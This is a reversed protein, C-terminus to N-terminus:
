LQSENTVVDGGRGPRWGSPRARYRSRQNNRPLSRLNKKAPEPRSPFFFRPIIQIQGRQEHRLSDDSVLTHWTGLDWCFNKNPRPRPKRSLRSPPHAIPLHKRKPTLHPLKCIMPSSQYPTPLVTGLTHIYLFFIASPTVIHNAHNNLQNNPAKYTKNVAADM